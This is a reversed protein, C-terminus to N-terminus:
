DFGLVIPIKLLINQMKQDLNPSELQFMIHTITCFLLSLLHVSSCVSLRLCRCYGSSSVPRLYFDDDDEEVGKHTSHSVDYRGLSTHPQNDKAQEVMAWMQQLRSSLTEM